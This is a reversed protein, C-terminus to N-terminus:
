YCSEPYPFDHFDGRTSFPVASWIELACPQDRYVVSRIQLATAVAQINLTSSPPGRQEYGSQGADPAIRSGSYTNADIRPRHLTQTCGCPYGM